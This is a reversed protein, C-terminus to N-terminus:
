ATRATEVLRDAVAEPDFDVEHFVMGDHGMSGGGVYVSEHIAPKTVGGPPYGLGAFGVPGLHLRVIPAPVHEARRAPHVTVDLRGTRAYIARCTDLFRELLVPDRM